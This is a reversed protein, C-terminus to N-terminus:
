THSHDAFPPDFNRSALEKVRGLSAMVQSHATRTDSHLREIALLVGSAGDRPELCAWPQGFMELLGLVKGQSSFTLAPVGQVLSLIALHMRGTVVFEADRVRDLVEAVTPLRDVLVVRSDGRFSEYIARCVIVDDDHFRSVHPLLDVVYGLDLLSRVVQVMAQDQGISRQILGSVNLVVRRNGSRASAAVTGPVVHIQFVVDASLRANTIGDSQIRELSRADRLLLDVGARGARRVYARSTPDPADNWSFGLVRAPIGAEHARQALLARAASARYNYAGDMTDAGIVAVTAANQLLRRYARYDRVFGLVDGYVLAPLVVQEASAHEAITGTARVVVKVPLMSNQVVAAVMAEDGLNGGGPPAILVNWAPGADGRSAGKIPAADALRSLVRRWLPDTLLAISKMRRFLRRGPFAVIRSM